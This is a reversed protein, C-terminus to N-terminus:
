QRGDKATRVLCANAANIDRLDSLASVVERSAPPTPPPPREPSGFVPYSYEEAAPEVAYIPGTGSLDQTAWVGSSFQGPSDPPRFTGTPFGSRFGSGKVKAAVLYLGKVNRSERMSAAVVRGNQVGALGSGIAKVVAPPAPRCGSITVILHSSPGPSDKWKVYAAVGAIGLLALVASGAAIIARKRAITV